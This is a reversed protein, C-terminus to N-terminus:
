GFAPSDDKGFAAVKGGSDKVQAWHRWRLVALAIRGKDLVKSVLAEMSINDPLFYTVLTGIKSCKLPADMLLDDPM